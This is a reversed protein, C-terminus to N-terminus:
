TSAILIEEGSGPLFSDNRNQFYRQLIADKSIHQVKQFGASLALEQIEAPTFFSIFPTGAAKAREYVMKHQAQETIPILNLPLIFTMILICQECLSAVQQLTKFNSENSLYMSVGASVFLTPLTKNFESHTLVQSWLEEKEFNVPIFHLNKPIDLGIAKLRQQKWKLMEPRDIEFVQLQSAIEPHRQVFTDLGAGLIVYQSLNKQTQEIVYDEIFRGRAVISARYPMTGQLHMDPRSQWNADPAILDLGVTDELIHPPPDCQVHLARWLAVREATSDPVKTTQPPM